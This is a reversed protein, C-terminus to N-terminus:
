IVPQAMWTSPPASAPISILNIESQILAAQHSVHPRCGTLQASRPFVRIRFYSNSGTTIARRFSTIPPKRIFISYALNIVELVFLSLLM